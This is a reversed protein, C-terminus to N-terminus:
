STKRAYLEEKIQNLRKELDKFPLDRCLIFGNPNVLINGPVFGVGFTKVLPSNWALGDCVNLGPLSDTKIRQKCEDKNFDLSINLMTISRAYPKVIENLQEVSLPDWEAWFNILLYRGKFQQNDIKKGDLSTCTFKPLRQGESCALLPRLATLTSLLSLNTPQAKVLRDILPKLVAADLKESQLLYTRLIAESVRSTPNEKIYKVAEKQVEATPKDLMAIRFKTLAENEPTGTVSTTRLNRADGEIRITKGPEALITIQSFNPYQLTVLTPETLEHDYSFTGDEVQITDFSNWGNNEALVFFEGKSLYKFEGKIRVKNNSPNCATLTLLTLFFFLTQKM